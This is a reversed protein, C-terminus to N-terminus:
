RTRVTAVRVGAVFAQPTTEYQSAPDRLVCSRVEIGHGALLELVPEVRHRYNVRPVHEFGPVPREVREGEGTQFAVLVPAGAALVRAVEAFVEDLATPATHIISYWALVGCASADAVPLRTLSGVIVPLRPHLLRAQRLMGESLDIGVVDLGLRSLHAAVRGTGCGADLVPGSAKVAAAFDEILRRDAPAEASLDPFLGAYEPASLDYATRTVVEDASLM